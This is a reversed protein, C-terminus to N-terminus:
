RRYMTQVDEESVDMDMADKFCQVGIQLERAGLGIKGAKNDHSELSNLLDWDKDDIEGARKRALIDASLRLTGEDVSRNAALM